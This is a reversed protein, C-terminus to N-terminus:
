GGISWDKATSKKDQTFSGKKTANQNGKERKKSASHLKEETKQGLRIRVKLFESLIFYYKNESNNTENLNLVLLSLCSELVLHWTKM